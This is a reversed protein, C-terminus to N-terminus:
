SRRDYTYLALVTVPGDAARLQLTYRAFGLDRIGRRNELYRKRGDTDTFPVNCPQRLREAGDISVCLVGSEATDVYAVAFDTGEVRITMTQGPELTLARDGYPAGWESVFPETAAVGDSLRWEPASVPFCARRDCIKCDLAVVNLTDAAQIELLHRDGLALRGHVFSSNRVDRRKMQRGNGAPGRKLPQGDIVISMWEDQGDNCWLNFATDDIIMCNKRIREHPAQYTVMSGEWGYSYPNLRPPLHKQPEPPLIPDAMEFMHELHRFWIEHAGAQPHGGDPCLAYRNCWKSTLDRITPIINIFPIGYHECLKERVAIPPINGDKQNRHWQCFLFEVDPFRKQFWRIAGEYVAIGDPSDIRENHGHGFIVLDPAPKRNEAFLGPYLEAWAKGKPHGNRPGPAL